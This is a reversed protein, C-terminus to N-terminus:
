LAPRVFIDLDAPVSRSRFHFIILNPWFFEKDAICLLFIAISVFIYLGLTYCHFVLRSFWSLCFFIYVYMEWSSHLM